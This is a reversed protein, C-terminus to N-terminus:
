SHFEMRQADVGGFSRGSQRLMELNKVGSILLCSLIKEKEGSYGDRCNSIEEWDLPQIPSRM